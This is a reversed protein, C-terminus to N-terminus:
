DIRKRRKPRPRTAVAATGGLVALAALGGATMNPHHILLVIARLAPSPAPPPVFSSPLEATQVAPTCSAGRCWAFCSVLVAGRADHVFGQAKRVTIPANAPGPPARSAAGAITEDLKALALPDAEPTWADVRAHFCAAVLAEADGGPSSRWASWQALEVQPTQSLDPPPTTPDPVFGAPAHLAVV